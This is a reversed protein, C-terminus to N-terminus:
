EALVTGEVETVGKLSLRIAKPLKQVVLSYSHRILSCILEESLYGFLNIQNWHRKNMHWAPSIEAYKERLEIAMDPNCKLVFWETRELDIMAFIRGGIRFALTTEDFPFDETAHPLSLCYERVSEINM